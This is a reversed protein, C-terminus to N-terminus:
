VIVEGLWESTWLKEQIRRLMLMGTRYDAIVCSSVFNASFPFCRDLERYVIQIHSPVDIFFNSLKFFLFVLLYIYLGDSQFIVRGLDCGADVNRGARRVEPCKRIMTKEDASIQFQCFVFLWFRFHTILVIQIRGVGM